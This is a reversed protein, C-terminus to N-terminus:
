GNQSKSDKSATVLQIPDNQKELMSVLGIVGLEGARRVEDWLLARRGSFLMGDICVGDGYPTSVSVEAVSDKILKNIRETNDRLDGDLHIDLRLIGGTYVDDAETRDWWAKSHAIRLLASPNTPEGSTRLDSDTSNM